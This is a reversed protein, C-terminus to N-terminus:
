DRLGTAEAAEIAGRLQEVLARGSPLDLEIAVRAATGLEYNTFDLLLAHEGDTHTSHDFGVTAQSLPFWGSSGRGAGRVAVSHSITTCM